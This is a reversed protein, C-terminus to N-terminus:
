LVILANLVSYKNYSYLRPLPLLPNISIRPAEAVIM